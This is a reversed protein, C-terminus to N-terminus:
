KNLVVAMTVAAPGLQAAAAGIADSTQLPHRGQVRRGCDACRGIAIDFARVLPRVDPLDEQYQTAHRTPRLRGGCEPCRPPLPAAYREHIQPPIRRHATRGYPVRSAAPGGLGVVHRAGRSRRRKGICRGGRMM